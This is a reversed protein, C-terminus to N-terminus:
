DCTLFIRHQKSLAMCPQIHNCYIKDALNEDVIKVFSHMEEWTHQLDCKQMYFELVNRLCSEDTENNTDIEDLLDEPLSMAKGIEQWKSRLSWLQDYLNDITFSMQAPVDNEEQLTALPVVNRVGDLGSNENWDHRIGSYIVKTEDEKACGDLKRKSSPTCTISAYGSEQLNYMYMILPQM